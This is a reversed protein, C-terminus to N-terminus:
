KLYQECDTVDYNKFNVKAKKDLWKWVHGFVAPCFNLYRLFLFPKLFYKEGNSLAKMSVFLAM